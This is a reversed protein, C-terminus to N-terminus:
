RCKPDNTISIVVKGPVHGNEFYDHAAVIEELPFVKSVHAKLM